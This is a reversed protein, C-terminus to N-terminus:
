LISIHSVTPPTPRSNSWFCPVGRSDHMLKLLIFEGLTPDYSVEDFRGRAILDPWREVPQRPNDRLWGSRDQLNLTLSCADLKYGLVAVMRVCHKNAWEEASVLFGRLVDTLRTVTEADLTSRGLLLNRLQGILRLSEGEDFVGLTLEGKAVHRGLNRTWDNVDTLAQYIQDPTYPKPVYHDAGLAYCQIRNELAVRVTVMVVPILATLKRSKVTRCVEFGNIDPLMLDLFVVDPPAHDIRSLAEQGTFASETQYGRLKVLMALLKNAEPEDEVILATPM